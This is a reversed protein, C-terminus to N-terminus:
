KVLPTEEDADRSKKKKRKQTSLFLASTISEMQLSSSQKQRGGSHVLAELKTQVDKMAEDIIKQKEEELVKEDL